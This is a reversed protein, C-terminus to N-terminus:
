VLHVRELFHVGISPFIHGDDSVFSPDGIVARGRFWIRRVLIFSVFPYHISPPGTADNPRVLFGISGHLFKGTMHVPVKSKSKLRSFATPWGIGHDGSIQGVSDRCM